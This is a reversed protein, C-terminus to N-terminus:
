NSALPTPKGNQSSGDTVEQPQVVADPRVRQTGNVIVKEGSKIGELVVRNGDVSAGLKVERYVVKNNGDVVYVFKKDQDTGIARDNILIAKTEHSSGLRINAFMGPVLTGDENDFIARARITGSAPNLRNDFSKIYGKYIVKEDGTLTLQVPVQRDQAARSEGNAGGDQRVSDLYTQEDVDFDAYIPSNSVITTLVPANPGAEVVNGVTIEARSIRGAIPAKIHAYELDLKAQKLEAEAATINARAVKAANNRADYVSQSVFKNKVLKAARDLEVKALHAQTQASALAAEAQAARAEFPRPDIVFLPADKQVLAGEEFLIQEITGSVRPRIEVFDVAELKGSFETWLRVNQEAATVVSVPIPAFAGEAGAQDAHADSLHYIGKALAAILLVAAVSTLPYRKFVALLRKM